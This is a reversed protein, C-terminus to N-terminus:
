QTGGYRIVFVKLKYEDGLDIMHSTGKSESDWFAILADSCQAMERNRRYGAAKGYNDWDAPHHEVQYGRNFAYHEGLKDAGKATGSVIIIEGDYNGIIRDCERELLEYDNFSRGGAIIIKM